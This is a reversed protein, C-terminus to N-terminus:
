MRSNDKDQLNIEEFSSPPKASNQNNNLDDSRLRQHTLDSSSNISKQFDLQDLDLQGIEQRAAQMRQEIIQLQALSLKQGSHSSSVKM